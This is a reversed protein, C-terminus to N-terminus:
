PMSRPQARGRVVLLADHRERDPPRRARGLRRLRRRQAAAEDCVVLEHECRRHRALALAPGRRSRVRKRARPLEDRGHRARADHGAAAEARPEVRDHLLHVSRERPLVAHLHHEARAAAVPADGRAPPLVQARQEARLARRGVALAARQQARRPRARARRGERVRQLPRPEVREEDGAAVARHAARLREARLQRRAPGRTAHGHHGLGDVVVDREHVPGKAEIRGHGRGLVRDVHGHGLGPGKRPAQADHTQHAAIRAEERRVRRECRRAVDVRAEHGLLGERQVRQESVELAAHLGRAVRDDDHGLAHVRADNVRLTRRHGDGAVDSGPEAVPEPPM